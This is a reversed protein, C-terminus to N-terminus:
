RTRRPYSPVTDSPHLTASHQSYAAQTKTLMDRNRGTGQDQSRPVTKKHIFAHPKSYVTFFFDYTCAYVSAREKALIDQSYTYYEEEGEKSMLGFLKQMIGVIKAYYAAM